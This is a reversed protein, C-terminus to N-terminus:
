PVLRHNRIKLDASNPTFTLLGRPTDHVIRWHKMIDQGLLSPFRMNYKQPKPVVVSITYVQLYQGDEFIIIADEEYPTTTGGIGYREVPSLTLNKHNVGMMIADRPHITTDDAGTDVLFDIYGDLKLNPFSLRGQVYPRGESDFSGLIM